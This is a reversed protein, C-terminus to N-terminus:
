YKQYNLTVNLLKAAPKVIENIEYNYINESRIKEFLDENKNYFISVLEEDIFNKTYNCKDLKSLVVPKDSIFYMGSKKNNKFISDIQNVSRGKKMNLLKFAKNEQNEALAFAWIKVRASKFTSMKYLPSVTPNQTAKWIFVGDDVFRIFDKLVNESQRATVGFAGTYSTIFFWATLKKIDIDSSKKLFAYALGIIQLKYPFLDPTNIKLYKRSYESLLKLSSFLDNIAKINLKSAIKDTNKDYISINLNLKLIPLLIDDSIDSWGDIGTLFKDKYCQIEEVLDFNESYSLANIMHKESMVTGRTNIREFSKTVLSQSDSELPVVPIKYNKFIGMIEDAKDLWCDNGDPIDRQFKILSKFDFVYHLPMLNPKNQEELSLASKLIFLDNVNKSSLDCYVFYDDANNIDDIYREAPHHLMCYLTTLRQLGDMIYSNYYGADISKVKFPGIHNFSRINQLKTNWILIAGIPLGEMVSCLLDRQQDWDWIYHRQFRPVRLLGEDLEKIIQTLFTVRPEATFNFSM